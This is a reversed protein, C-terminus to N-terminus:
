PSLSPAKQPPNPDTHEFVTSRHIAWILLATLITAFLVIGSFLSFIKRLM